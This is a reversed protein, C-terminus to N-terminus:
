NSGCTLKRCPTPVGNVACKKDGVYKTDVHRCKIKRRRAGKYPRWYCVRKCKAEIKEVKVEHVLKCKLKDCGVKKGGKFCEPTGKYKHLKACNIQRPKSSRTKKYYCKKMCGGTTRSDYESEVTKYVDKKELEYGAREAEEEKEEEAAARRVREAELEKLLEMKAEAEMAEHSSMEKEQEYSSSQALEMAEHSSLEREMAEREMAEHSSLERETDREMAEHSSLEEEQADPLRICDRSLDNTGLIGDCEANGTGWNTHAYM